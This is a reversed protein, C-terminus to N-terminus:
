IQSGKAPRLLINTIKSVTDSYRPDVKLKEWEPDTRFANWGKDLAEKSDFSLMYTLNPLNGGALAQGFFVPPMGVRRFIALEGGTNFMEIKRLARDANHSEYVRLQLIRGAATTPVEVQPVGDFALLLSSEVRTYAPDDKGAHLIDKGGAQLAQDADLQAPLNALAAADRFPLLMVLDTERLSDNLEPNDASHMKFLGVPKVGARNLAPILAEAAFQEFAAAKEASAFHYTRLELLQKPSEARSPMAFCVIWLFSLATLLRLRCTM